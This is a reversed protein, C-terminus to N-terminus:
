LTSNTKGGPKKNVHVNSFPVKFLYFDEFFIFVSIFTKKTRNLSFFIVTTIRFAQTPRKKEGLLYFQDPFELPIFFSYLRLNWEYHHVFPFNNNLKATEKLVKLINKKKWKNDKNGLWRGLGVRKVRQELVLFFLM